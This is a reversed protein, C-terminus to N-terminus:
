DGREGFVADYEDELEGDAMAEYRSTLDYLGNHPMDRTAVRDVLAWFMVEREIKEM